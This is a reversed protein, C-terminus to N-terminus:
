LKHKKAFHRFSDYTIGLLKAARKHVGEARELAALLYARETERLAADFDVGEEPVLTQNPSMSTVAVHDLYHRSIKEPLVEVTVLSGSELAVAREITNELERVNGPWDYSRFLM